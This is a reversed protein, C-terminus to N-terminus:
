RPSSRQTDVSFVATYCVLHESARQNRWVGRAWRGYHVKNAGGFKAYANNEIERTVATIGLLLPFCLNHLIKSPLYPANYSIHLHRIYSLNLVTVTLLQQKVEHKLLTPDNLRAGSLLYLRYGAVSYLIPLPANRSKGPKMRSKPSPTATGNKIRDLIATKSLNLETFKSLLFWNNASSCM